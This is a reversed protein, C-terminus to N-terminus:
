TGYLLANAEDVTIAPGVFEFVACPRGGFSGYIDATGSQRPSYSGPAKILAWNPSRDRDRIFSPHAPYSRFRRGLAKYAGAITDCLVHALGMGQWDPLTVTRSARTLNKVSKHPFHLTAVFSAPVLAEGDEVFLCFCKAATNLDATLYHYPAFIKWAAQDVRGIQVALNPRRQLARRELRVEPMHLVWDPQLWDIIDYHCSIAVLQQKRTRVTKAIAHSAIKAVQRDVVSTFEDVVVPDSVKDVLRRALDVRFQEGNSLVNYPRMWAPITNFGVSGLVDAVTAIPVSKPFDDVVSPHTWEFTQKMQEPWLERAVSTKGSGSPGVILGIGWEEPLEFEGEINLVSFDHIPVDFLSQLQLVRSTPEVRSQKTINLVTM